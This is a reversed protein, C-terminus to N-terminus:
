DRSLVGNLASEHVARCEDWGIGMGWVSPMWGFLSGTDKMESCQGPGQTLDQFTWKYRRLAADSDARTLLSEM